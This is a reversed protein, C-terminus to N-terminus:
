QNGQAQWSFYHTGNLWPSGAISVTFGTTSVNSISPTVLTDAFARVTPASSYPAPFVVNASGNGSGDITMSGRGVEVKQANSTSLGGPPAQIAEGPVSAPGDVIAECIRHADPMSVTVVTGFVLQSRPMNQNIKIGDIWTDIVGVGTLEV